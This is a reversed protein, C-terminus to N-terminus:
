IPLCPRSQSPSLDSLAIPLFKNCRLVVGVPGECIRWRVPHDTPSESSQAKRSPGPESETMISTLGVETGSLCVCGRCRVLIALGAWHTQRWQVYRRALLKYRM